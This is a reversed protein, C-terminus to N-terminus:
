RVRRRREQVVLLVIAILLLIGGVFALLMTASRPLALALLMPVFASLAVRLWPESRPLDYERDDPPAQPESM